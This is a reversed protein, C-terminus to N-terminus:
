GLLMLRVSSTGGPMYLWGSEQLSISLAMHKSVTARYGNGLVRRM